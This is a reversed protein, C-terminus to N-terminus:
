GQDDSDHRYGEVPRVRTGLVMVYVGVTDRQAPFRVLFTLRDWQEVPVFLDSPRDLQVIADALSDHSFAPALKVYDM